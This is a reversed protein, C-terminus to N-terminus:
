IGHEPIRNNLKVKAQTKKQQNNESQQRQSMTVNAQWM